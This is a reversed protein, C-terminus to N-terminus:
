TQARRRRGAWARAPHQWSSKYSPVSLTRERAAAATRAGRAFCSSNARRLRRGRERAAGRVSGRRAAERQRVGHWAGSHGRAAAVRQQVRRASGHTGHAAVRVCAGCSADSHQAAAARVRPLVSVCRQESVLESTARRRRAVLLSVGGSQERRRARQKAAAVATGHVNASQTHGHLRTSGCRM